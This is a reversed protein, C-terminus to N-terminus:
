HRMRLMRYVQQSVYIIQDEPSNSEYRSLTPGIRAGHIMWHYTTENLDRWLRKCFLEGNESGVFIFGLALAAMSALEMTVGDDAVIPVLTSLLDDRM